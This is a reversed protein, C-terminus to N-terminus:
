TDRAQQQAPKRWSQQKRLVLSYLLTYSFTPLTPLHSPLHPTLIDEDTKWQDKFFRTPDSWHSM